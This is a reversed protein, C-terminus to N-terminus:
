DKASWNDLLEAEAQADLAIDAANQNIFVAVPAADGAGAPRYAAGADMFSELGAAQTVWRSGDHCAVARWNDDDRLLYERCWNGDRHPFTLVPQLARGDALTTWGRGSPLRDLAADVLRDNGPLQSGPEDRDVVIGVAVALVVSAALAVPWNITAPAASGARQKAPFPLVKGAESNTSDAREADALTANAVATATDAKVVAVAPKSGPANEALIAQVAAPIAARGSLADRLRHNLEEVKVLGDKLAAENGLRREFRRAEMSSMEGDSYRSLLELDDDTLQGVTDTDRSDM